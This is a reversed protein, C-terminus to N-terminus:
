FGICRDRHRKFRLIKGNGVRESNERLGMNIEMEAGKKKNKTTSLKISLNM